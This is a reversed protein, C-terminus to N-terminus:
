VLTPYADSLKYRSDTLVSLCDAFTQYKGQMDVGYEDATDKTSDSFEDNVDSYDANDTKNEVTDFNFLKFVVAFSYLEVACHHSDIKHTECFKRVNEEVNGTTPYVESFTSFVKPSFIAFTELVHRSSSFRENIEAIVSDVTAYFVECRLKEEAFTATEDQALEGSIRRRRSIKKKEGSSEM